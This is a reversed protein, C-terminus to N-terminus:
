HCTAPFARRLSSAAKAGGDLTAAFARLGAAVTAGQQSLFALATPDRYHIDLLEDDPLTLLKAQRELFQASPLKAM